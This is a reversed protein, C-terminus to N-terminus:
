QNTNHLREAEAVESEVIHQKVDELAKDLENSFDQSEERAKAVERRFFDMAVDNHCNGNTYFLLLTDHLPGSLFANIFAPAPLRRVEPNMLFRKIENAYRSAEKNEVLTAILYSINMDTGYKLGPECTPENIIAAMNALTLTASLMEVASLEKEGNVAAGEKPAIQPHQTKNM